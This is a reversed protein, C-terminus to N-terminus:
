RAPEVAAGLAALDGSGDFFVRIEVVGDPPSRPVSVTVSLERPEGATGELIGGALREEGKALRLNMDWGGNPEGTPRGGQYRLRLRYKGEALHVYPGFMIHGIKDTGVVASRAGNPQIAGTLGPVDKALYGLPATPPGVRRDEFFFGGVGVPAKTDVPVIDIRDFSKGATPTLAFVQEAYADSGCEAPLTVDQSGASLGQGYFELRFHTDPKASFRVHGGALAQPMDITLAHGPEVIRYSYQWMCHTFFVRQMDDYSVHNDRVPPPRISGAYSPATAAQRVTEGTVLRFIAAWRRASFFAGSTITRVDDFTKALVRDAILDRHYALSDAYGGPIERSYHGPGWGLLVKNTGLQYLPLKSLFPDALACRDFVHADPGAEFAKWGLGGCDVAVIRSSDRADQSGKDAIRGRLWPEFKRWGSLLGREGVYANKEDTLRPLVQVRAHHRQMDEYTFYTHFAPLGPGLLGTAVVSALAVPRAIGSGGRGLGSVICFSSILVSVSLFRGLMFDGGILTLYICYCLVGAMLARSGANVGRRGASVVGGALVLLTMPDHIFMAHWYRLGYELLDREPIQTTVKAYYSNSLFTGYYVLSFLLWPAAVAAGIAAGTLITSRSRVRSASYLLAPAVLVAYDYRVLFLLAALGSLTLFWRRRPRVALAIALCCFPAVLAYALPNELGSTTFDLFSKSFLLAALVGLVVGRASRKQWGFRVFSLIALTSLALSVVLPGYWGDSLVYVPVLLLGWLPSTMTEVRMDPNFSFGRGRVLNVIQRLGILYDDCLWGAYIASAVLALVLLNRLWRQANISGLLSGSRVSALTGDAM